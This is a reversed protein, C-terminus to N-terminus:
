GAGSSRGGRGRSLATGDSTPRHQDATRAAYAQHTAQVARCSLLPQALALATAEAGTLRSRPRCVGCDRGRGRGCVCVAASDGTHYACCGARSGQHASHSCHPDRVAGPCQCPHGCVPARSTHHLGGCVRRGGPAPCKPWALLPPCRPLYARTNRALPSPASATAGVGGSGATDCVPTAGADCPREEEGFLPGVDTSELSQERGRHGPGRATGLRSM